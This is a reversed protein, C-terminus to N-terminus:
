GVRMVLRVPMLLFSDLHRLLVYWNTDISYEGWCDRSGPNNDCYQRKINGHEMVAVDGLPIVSATAVALLAAAPALFASAAKM